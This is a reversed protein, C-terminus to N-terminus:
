IEEHNIYEGRSDLVIKDNAYIEFYYEDEVMFIEGSLKTLNYSSLKKLMEKEALQESKYAKNSSFIVDDKEYAIRNGWILSAVYNSASVILFSLSALLVYVTWFVNSITSIIIIISAIGLFYFICVKKSSKNDITKYLYLSIINSISILVFFEIFVAVLKEGRYNTFELLRIMYSTDPTTLDKVESFLPYIYVGYYIWVILLFIIIGIGYIKKSKANM